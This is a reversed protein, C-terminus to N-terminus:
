KAGSNLVAKSLVKAKAKETERQIMPCIYQASHMLSVLNFDPPSLSQYSFFFYKELAHRKHLERGKLQKYRQTQGKGKWCHAFSTMHTESLHYFCIVLHASMFGVCIISYLDIYLFTQLAWWWLYPSQLRNLTNGCSTWNDKLPFSISTFHIRRM